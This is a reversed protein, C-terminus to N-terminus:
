AHCGDCGAACGVLLCKVEYGQSLLRDALLKYHYGSDDYYSCCREYRILQSIYVGYSPGSPINSALFPFNVIHVDFDDNTM